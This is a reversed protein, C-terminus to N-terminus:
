EEFEILEECDEQFTEGGLRNCVFCVYNLYVAVSKMITPSFDFGAKQSREAALAVGFRAREYKEELRYFKSLGEKEEPSAYQSILAQKDLVLEVLRNSFHPLRRKYKLFEEYQNSLEACDVVTQEVIQEYLGREHQRTYHYVLVGGVATVIVGIVIPLFLKRSMSLGTTKVKESLRM